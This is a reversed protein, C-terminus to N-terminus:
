CDGAYYSIISMYDKPASIDLTLCLFNKNKRYQHLLEMQLGHHKNINEKRGDPYLLHVADSCANVTQLFSDMDLINLKIM